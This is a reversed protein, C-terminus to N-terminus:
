AYAVMPAEGVELEFTKYGLKAENTCDAGMAKFRNAEQGDSVNVCILYRSGLQKRAESVTEKENLLVGNAKVQKVLQVHDEIILYAHYEDCLQKIHLAVNVMDDNKAENMRLQVWQCGNMLALKVNETYKSTTESISNIQRM